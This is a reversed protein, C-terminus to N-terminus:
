PHVTHRVVHVTTTKIIHPNEQAQPQHLLQMLRTTDTVLLINSICHEAEQFEMRVEAQGLM